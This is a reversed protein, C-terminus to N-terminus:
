RGAENKKLLSEPVWLRWTTVLRKSPVAPDLQSYGPRIRMRCAAITEREDAYGQELVFGLRKFVASNQLKDGYEILLRLDRHKSRMYSEFIDLTSRIGGGLSPDNFLDLVTRTPDSVEVRQDGIWERKTGFLAKDLVTRVVFRAGKLNLKRKHVKKTTVVFTTHFVQETLDWHEAASWGGIYCPSFLVKALLWPEVVAADANEAEVPVPAYVGQKIRSVWGQESWRSLMQAAQPRRVNLIRAAEAVTISGRTGRMLKGLSARSKAGIGRVQKM